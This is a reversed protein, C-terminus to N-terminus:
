SNFAWSENPTMTRVPYRGRKIRRGMADGAKKQVTPMFTSFLDLSLHNPQIVEIVLEAFATRTGRADKATKAVEKVREAQAETLNLKAM